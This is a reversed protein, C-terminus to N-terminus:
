VRSWRQAPPATLRNRRLIAVGDTSAVVTATFRDSKPLSRPLNGVRLGNVSAFDDIDVNTGPLLNGAGNLPIYQTSAPVIEIADTARIGWTRTLEEAHTATIPLGLRVLYPGRRAPNMVRNNIVPVRRGDKGEWSWAGRWTLTGFPVGGETATFIMERQM